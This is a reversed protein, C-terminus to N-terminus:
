AATAAGTPRSFGLPLAHGSSAAGSASESAQPAGAYPWGDYQGGHRLLTLAM